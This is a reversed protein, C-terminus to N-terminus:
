SDKKPDMPNFPKLKDHLFDFLEDLGSFGKQGGTHPDELSVRWIDEGAKKEKWLRLLFAYYATDNAM